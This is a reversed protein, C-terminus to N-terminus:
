QLPPHRDMKYRFFSGPDGPSKATLQLRTNRPATAHTAGWDILTEVLVDSTTIDAASTPIPQPRVDAETPQAATAARPATAALGVAAAAQFFGRRDWGSSKDNKM